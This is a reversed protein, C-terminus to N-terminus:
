KEKDPSVPPLAANLTFFAMDIMDGMGVWWADHDVGWQITEKLRRVDTANRDQQLQIDGLPIM